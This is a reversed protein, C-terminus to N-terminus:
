RRAPRASARASRQLGAAVDGRQRRRLAVEADDELGVRQKGVERHGVVDGVPEHVAAHRPRSIAARTSSSSSAPRAQGLLPSLYGAWSEPPCCCRTASARASAVEGPRSSSSSGSDARSALTRTCRRWSIRCSCRPQADRGDHDRVVLLLRERHGVADHHHVVAHDLLDARRELDVALRGGGKTASKTPLTFTSAPVTALRWPHANAARM